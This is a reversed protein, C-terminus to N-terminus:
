CCLCSFYQRFDPKNIKVGLRKMEKHCTELKKHHGELSNYWACMFELPHNHKLFACIFAVIAYAQSHAKNFSYKAFELMIDWLTNVQEKQGDVNM